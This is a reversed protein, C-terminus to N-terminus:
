RRNCFRVVREPAARWSGRLPLKLFSRCAASNIKHLLHGMRCFSGREPSSAIGCPMSQSPKSSIKHFVFFHRPKKRLGGRIDLLVMAPGHDDLVAAVSHDVLAQFVGHHVVKDGQRQQAHPHHQHVATAGGDVLHQFLHAHFAVKCITQPHRVIGGHLDHLLHQCTLHVLVKHCLQAPAAHTQAAHVSLHEAAGLQVRLQTMHALDDM